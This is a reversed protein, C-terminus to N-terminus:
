APYKKAIANIQSYGLKLRHDVYYHFSNLHQKIEGLSLDALQVRWMAKGASTNRYLQNVM